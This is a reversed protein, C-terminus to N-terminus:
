QLEDYNVITKVKEGEIAKILNNAITVSTEMAAELSIGGIHPTKIIEDVELFPHNPSPPENRFVDVGAARITKHKVAEVLDEENVIGGRATNILISDPKMLNLYTKDIIKDTKETLPIHLSVVDCEKFVREMEMTLEVGMSDAVEQREEPIRRVYALVDMEFGYKMIKGVKQAISGFGVIGLKKGKLESTYRGDRYSFNGTKLQDNFDPINKMVSLILSAAHEATATTNIKPAHLISIGKKTAYDVDINDLGVGAGSIAKVEDCADLIAPTIKAPARLMIGDIKNENLFAIIKDEDFTDFKTVQAHKELVEEGKPHYMSLLQLIHVNRM